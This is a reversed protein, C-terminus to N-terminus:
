YEKLLKEHVRSELLNKEPNGKRYALGAAM